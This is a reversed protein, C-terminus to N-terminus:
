YCVDHSGVEIFYIVDEEVIKFVIRDSYSISFSYYEKLNGKLRHTRLRKDFIDEKFIALRKRLRKKLKETLGELYKHWHKEFADDFHISKPKMSM